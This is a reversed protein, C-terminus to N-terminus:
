SGNQRFSSERIKDYVIYLVVTLVGSALFALLAMWKIGFLVTWLVAFIGGLVEVITYRASVRAGCYRCKGRLSVWSLIPIMDRMTLEHGCTTCKSHGLTFQIHRPLRYIIVNLFSFISAGIAFFVIEIVTRALIISITLWDMREEMATESLGVRNM